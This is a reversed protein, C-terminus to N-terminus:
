LPKMLEETFCVKRLYSELAAEDWAKGIFANLDFFRSEEGEYEFTEFTLRNEDSVTDGDAELRYNVHDNQYFHMSCVYRGPLIEQLIRKKTPGEEGEVEYYVVVRSGKGGRYTLFTRELYEAPFDILEHYAYFVPLYWKERLFGHIIRVAVDGIQAMWSKREAFYYLFHVMTARDTIRGSGIERGIIAYISEPLRLRDEREKASLFELYEGVIPDDGRGKYYDEFVKFLDGTDSDTFMHQELMRKELASTDLGFKKSREWILLLDELEGTFHEMLYALTKEDYKKSVFAAFALNLTTEDWAGDMKEVGFEALKLCEAAPLMGCGYREIGSFAKEILGTEMYLTMLQKRFEASVLDYDVRELWRTLENKQGHQEYYLLLNEAARARIWPQYGDRFAVKQMVAVARDSKDGDLEGSLSLLIRANDMNKEIWTKPFQEPSLFADIRCPVGTVYRQENSDVFYLVSRENLIEAYCFGGSLPYYIEEGTEPRDVYVGIMNKNECTLKRYFLIDCVAKANEPKELVDKQFNTYLFALHENIRGKLLQEEVFPAMKSYYAGYVEDYSDKNKLINTYLYAKEMSDLSNSYTFYILVRYPIVEYDNFDMSRIFFENLGIIRLNAEVAKRFYEHYERGYRNGKILLSCIVQLFREDPEVQYLKEAITFLSTSYYKIRLALAAFQCALSMSIYGYRLGWRFVSIEFSGLEEMYNSNENLIACAEFYLLSSNNGDRFLQRITDYQLRKNYVYERDLYLLMWLAEAKYESVEYFERIAVVAESINEPKRYFMAKLYLFYHYWLPALEEVPSTKQTEAEEEESSTGFSTKSSSESATESSAESSSPTGSEEKAEPQGELEALLKQAEELHEEMMLLHLKFLRWETDKTLFYLDDLARDSEAAFDDFGISGTRFSLYNHLLEARQKKIRSKLEQEKTYAPLTGWWEVDIAFEQRSTRITIVDNGMAYKENKEVLLDLCGDTFDEGTFTDLSLKVQGRESSIRGETYGPATLRIQVTEENKGADLIIPREEVMLETPEKYGAATLFEELIRNKSRSKMLSHAMARQEPDDKLFVDAFHPLFFLELAEERHSFYLETFEEMTTIIGESTKAAAPVVLFRYPINYEGGNTVLVFDGVYERGALAEKGEFCYPIEVREADFEEVSLRVKDNGSRVFGRIPVQNESELVFSGKYEKGEEANIDLNTVSIHFIPTEGKKVESLDIKEKM